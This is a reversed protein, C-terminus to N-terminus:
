VIALFPFSRQLHDLAAERSLAPEALVPQEPSRGILNQIEVLISIVVAEKPQRNWRKIVMVMENYFAILNMLCLKGRQLDICVTTMNDTVMKEIM